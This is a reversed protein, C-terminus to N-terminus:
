DITVTFRLTQPGAAETLDGLSVRVAPPSDEFRGADGDTADTLAAGNLVLSGPVYTTDPPIPDVVTAGTATGSGTATVVIEYVVRAGPVPESGGFPDVVSQSKVASVSIDAAVYEGAAEGDGGTAGLVADTGAEGAGSVVTGPAGRGTAAVAELRSRGRQGNAATAPIDNVVLVTVSEDPALLPDNVGPSYAVDAPSLGGSGDTDFYIFPAAPLPDFDDDPLASDAALALVEPGNGTNTVRFVLAQGASGAPAALTPSQLTVVVDVLEAVRLSATNSRTTVTSDGLTFSVVATNDIVTGAPTGAAQAAAPLAFLAALLAARAGGRTTGTAPKMGDDAGCM